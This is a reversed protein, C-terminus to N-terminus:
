AELLFTVPGDNVLHVQMDAGFVGSSVKDCRSKLSELMSEYLDLALQPQAAASFGPRQGKHTQAALTFQSVLLIGGDVDLVSNNMKGADDSFMRFKTIKDALKDVAEQNDAREVGLLVLMGGDVSGVIRNDVTVYASSVRQVLAKM